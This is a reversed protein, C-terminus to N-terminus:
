QKDTCPLAIVQAMDDSADTNHDGCLGCLEGHYLGLVSVTAFHGYYELWVNAEGLHIRVLGDSRQWVRCYSFVLHISYAHAESLGLHPLFV